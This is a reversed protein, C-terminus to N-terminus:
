DFSAAAVGGTFMIICPVCYMFVVYFILTFFSWTNLFAGSEILLGEVNNSDGLPGYNTVGSCIKGTKRWRFVAGTIMWALM